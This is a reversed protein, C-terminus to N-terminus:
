PASRVVREAGKKRLYIQWWEKSIGCDRNITTSFVMYYRENKYKQREYVIFVHM